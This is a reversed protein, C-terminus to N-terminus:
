LAIEGREAHVVCTKPYLVLYEIALFDELLQM